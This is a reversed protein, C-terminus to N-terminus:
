NKSKFVKNHVAQFLKISKLVIVSYIIFTQLAKEATQDSGM